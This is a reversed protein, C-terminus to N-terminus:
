LQLIRLKVLGTRVLLDAVLAVVLFLPLLSGMVSLSLYDTWLFPLFGGTLIVTTQVIARGTFYFTNELAQQDNDTRLTELRLRTLFHITDDVGIGIAILAIFALDSDVKDWTLGLYGGLVILPLANPIMSILAAWFRRICLMM